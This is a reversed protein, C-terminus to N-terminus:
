IKIEYKLFDHVAKEQAREWAEEKSMNESKQKVMRMCHKAHGKNFGYNRNGYM